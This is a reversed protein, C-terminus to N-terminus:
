GTVCGTLILSAPKGTHSNIPEKFDVVQLGHDPFLNFWSEVTRFYWPAPNSFDKSFGDWNGERWGDVYNHNESSMLPHLTQIILCGEPHLLGPVAAFVSGVSEKGILSFNCVVVDFPESFTTPLLEEYALQYFTGPCTKRTQDVLEDTVDIGTVAIGVDALARCLWGEGCGVDLVTKPSRATIADIIATDTVLKRSEIQGSEIAAIWPSANDRWSEVIRKEYIDNM